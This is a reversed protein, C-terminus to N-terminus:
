RGYELRSLLDSRVARGSGVRDAVANSSTVGGVDTLDFFLAHFPAVKAWRRLMLRGNVEAM